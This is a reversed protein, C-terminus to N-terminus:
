GLIQSLALELAKIRENLAENEAQIDKITQDLNNNVPVLDESSGMRLLVFRYKKNTLLNELYMGNEDGFIRWIKIDDKQFIIDETYYGNAQVYGEVDLEYAPSTTNIGVNGNVTLGDHGDINVAGADAVITRGAGSGGEDYAQDLTNNGTGPGGTAATTQITGDPFKFGGTTSHIIGNVELMSTPNLIGIGVNSAFYGMGNFYGAWGGAYTVHIGDGSANTVRLGHNGSNDVWIACASSTNVRLGRGPGNKEINVVPAYESGVIHLINTPSATGIGVKGNTSNVFLVASGTSGDIRLSGNVHLKESPSTIGIGVNGTVNSFMHPPNTQYDWDDDPDTFRPSDLKFSDGTGLTTKLNNQSLLPSIEEDEITRGIGTVISAGFFLIIVLAALGKRFLNNKEM